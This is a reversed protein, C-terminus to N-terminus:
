ACSTLIRYIFKWHLVVIDPELGLRGKSRLGSCIKPEFSEMGNHWSLPFLPSLKLNMLSVIGMKRDTLRTARKPQSASSIESDERADLVIFDNGLGYMKKFPIDRCEVLILMREANQTKASM